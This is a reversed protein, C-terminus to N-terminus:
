KSKFAFFKSIFFNLIIVIVTLFTKSIINPIPLKFLIFGGVFELTMTFARGIIFRFFQTIKEKFTTANSHFVIDKNTIYAVLIALIIAILNSINEEWHLIDAM